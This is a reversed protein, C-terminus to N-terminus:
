ALNLCVRRCISGYEDSLFSVISIILETAIDSKNKILQSM